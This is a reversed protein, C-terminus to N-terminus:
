WESKPSVRDEGWRSSRPWRWPCGSSWGSWRSSTPAGWSWGRDGGRQQRRPRGGRDMTIRNSAGGVGRVGGLLLHERGARSRPPDGRVAAFLWRRRDRGARGRAPRAAASGSFVVGGGLAPAISLTLALALWANGDLTQLARRIGGMAGADILDLWTLAASLCLTLGVIGLSATVLSIAGVPRLGLRTALAARSTSPHPGLVAAGAVAMFAWHAAIYLAVPVMGAGEVFETAPRGTVAIGVGVAGAAGALQALVGLLWWGLLASPAPPRPGPPPGAEHDVPPAASM